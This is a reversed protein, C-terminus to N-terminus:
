AEVATSLHFNQKHEARFVCIVKLKSSTKRFYAAAEFLLFIFHLQM